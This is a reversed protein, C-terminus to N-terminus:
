YDDDEDEDAHDFLEQWKKAYERPGMECGKAEAKMRVYRRRKQHDEYDGARYDNRIGNGLPRPRVGDMPARAPPPILASRMGGVSGEIIAGMYYDPHQEILWQIAEDVSGVFRGDDLRAEALDWEQESGVMAPAAMNYGAGEFLRASIRYHGARRRNRLSSYAGRLDDTSNLIRVGLFGLPAVVRSYREPPMMMSEARSPECKLMDMHVFAGDLKIIAATGNAYPVADMRDPDEQSADYLSVEAYVPNDEDVKADRGILAFLKNQDRVIEHLETM